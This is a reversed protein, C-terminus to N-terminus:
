EDGANAKLQAIVAEYQRRRRANSTELTAATDFVNVGTGLGLHDRKFWSPAPGTRSVWRWPPGGVDPSPESDLSPPTYGTKQMVLAVIDEVRQWSKDFQSAVRYELWLDQVTSTM